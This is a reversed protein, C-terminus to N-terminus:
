PGPRREGDAARERWGDASHQFPSYGLPLFIIYRFFFLSRRCAKLFHSCSCSGDVFSQGDGMSHVAKPFRQIYYHHIATPCVIHLFLFFSHFTGMAMLYIMVIESAPSTQLPGQEKQSERGKIASITILAEEAETWEGSESEWGYWIHPDSYGM